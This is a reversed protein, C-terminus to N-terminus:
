FTWEFQATYIADARLGDRNLPLQVNGSLVLSSWPNVKLGLASQVVDDNVGDRKDDHFGLFDVAVIVREILRVDTGAIWIAQSVDDGDRLAYGLNLHPSLRPFDKSVILFPTFTAHHFGLFDDANGTQITLTGSVAWDAWRTTAFRWKSRLYVDGTGFAEDDFADATCLRDEPDCPHERAFGADFSPPGDGNPDSLRAEARARMRLHNLSLAVSVDIDPTVGYAAGLVFQDLSLAFDVTTTLRDDDFRLRDCRQPDTPDECPLQALFSDSFAPQDSSLRSLPDGGLTDFDIRTYSFGVTGFREGLTQATDALGPGKRMRHFTGVEPDWAFRFAGAASPVPAVSRFTALSSSLEALESPLVPQPDGVGGPSISTALGGLLGELQDQLSAATALRAQPPALAVIASGLAAIGARLLAARVRFVSPRRRSITPEHSGPDADARGLTSALQRM